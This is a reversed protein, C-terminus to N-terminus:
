VTKGVNIVNRIKESLKLDQPPVLFGLTGNPHDTMKLAKDISVTKGNRDICDQDTNINRGGSADSVVVKKVNESKAALLTGANYADRVETRVVRAAKWKPYSDFTQAFEEALQDPSKNEGIKNAFWTRMESKVTDSVKTVLEAARQEAWKQADPRESNWKIEINAKGLEKNAAIDMVNKLNKANKKYAVKITQDIAIVKFIKSLFDGDEEQKQQEKDSNEDLKIEKNSKIFNLVGDYIDKYTQEWLDFMANGISEIEKDDLREDVAKDHKWVKESLSLSDEKNSANNTTGVYQGDVVGAKGNQPEIDEPMVNKLEEEIRSQQAAIAANSIVPVGAQELIEKVDVQLQTPDSQGILQVLQKSLAIDANSFGRTIKRCTGKFDPFNHEVLQPIMFRNICDDIEGMLVAQSEFFIDGMEAAVNRSSTGGAGEILSNEPVMLSRIKMVDLYKFRDNFVAFNGGGTLYSIEWEKNNTPKGEYDTITTSPLAVTAGSRIDEGIQLAVASPDMEVGDDTVIKDTPHRVITAPDADKEFHRDCLAWNYWYTWWYRYSYGVRPFGYMSGHCSDKENTVWLSQELPITKDTNDITNSLFSLNNSATYKIGDFDGNDNWKPEVHEPKLAVFPRWTLAKVDKDKWVDVVENTEKDIYTWDIEKLEFRKVIAQFGFDLANCYQFIFRAYIERLCRDVFTAIDPRECEIYWPARVLPVKTYQLAFAIMPDRRMQYLKSLPLNYVDFPDGVIESIKQWAFSETQKKSSPASDNVLKTQMQKQFREQPTMSPM